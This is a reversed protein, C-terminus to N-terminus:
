GFLIVVLGGDGGSAAFLSNEYRKVSFKSDCLVGVGVPELDEVICVGKCCPMGRGFLLAGGFNITVEGVLLAM